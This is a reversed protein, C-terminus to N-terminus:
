FFFFLNQRHFIKDGFIASSFFLHFFKTEAIFYKTTMYLWNKKLFFFPKPLSIKWRWIYNLLTFHFLVNPLLITKDKFLKNLLSFMLHCFPKTALLKFFFDSMKAHFLVNPSLLTEDRFLTNLSSFILHCFPKM